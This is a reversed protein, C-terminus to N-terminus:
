PLLATQFYQLPFSHPTLPLSVSARFSDGLLSLNGGLTFCKYLFTSINSCFTFFINCYILDHSYPLTFFTCSIWPPLRKFSNFSVKEVGNLSLFSPLFLSLCLFFCFPSVSLFFPVSLSFYIYLICM